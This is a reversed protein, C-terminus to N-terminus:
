FPVPNDFFSDDFLSKSASLILMGDTYHKPFNKFSTIKKFEKESYFYLKRHFKNWIMKATKKNHIEIIADTKKWDLFNTSMIMEREAGEADIKILDFKKVFDKFKLTQITTYTINGYPKDKAGLIHSAMTHDNVNVFKKLGGKGSFGKRVLKVNVKNKKVNDKLIKFHNKDPEFATTKFKLKSLFITHLGINAGIDAVKRYKNRMKFFFYLSRLEGSNIGDLSNTNGFKVYPLFFKINLFKIIINKKFKRDLFSRIKLSLKDKKFIKSKYKTNSRIFNRKQNLIEKLFYNLNLIQNKKLIKKKLKKTTMDM